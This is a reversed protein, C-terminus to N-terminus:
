DRELLEHGGVFHVVEERVRVPEACIVRGDLEEVPPQPPRCRRSSALLPTSHGRACARPHIGASKRVWRRFDSVPKLTSFGWKGHDGPKRGPDTRGPKCGPSLRATRGQGSNGPKRGPDTFM